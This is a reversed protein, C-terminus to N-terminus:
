RYNKPRADLVSIDPAKMVCYIVFSTGALLFILLLIGVTKLFPHRKKKKEMVPEKEKRNGNM